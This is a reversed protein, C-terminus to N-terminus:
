GALIIRRRGMARSPRRRRKGTPYSGNDGSSRNLVPHLRNQHAAQRFSLPVTAEQVMLWRFCLQHTNWTVKGTKRCRNALTQDSFDLSFILRTAQQNKPSALTSLCPRISASSAMRDVQRTQRVQHARTQLVHSSPRAQPLCIVNQRHRLLHRNVAQPTVDGDIGCCSTAVTLMAQKFRLKGEGSRRPVTQVNSRGLM